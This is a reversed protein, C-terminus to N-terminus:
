IETNEKMDRNSTTYFDKGKFILGVRSFKKRVNKGKCDPCFLEKPILDYCSVIIDFEKKCDKCQFNYIPM